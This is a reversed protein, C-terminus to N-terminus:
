VTVLTLLFFLRSEVFTLFTVRTLQTQPVYAVAGRLTSSIRHIFCGVLGSSGVDFVNGALSGKLTRSTVIAFSDGAGFSSMRCTAGFCLYGRNLRPGGAWCGGTLSKVFIFPGSSNMLSRMPPWRIFSAIFCRWRADFFDSVPYPPVFKVTFVVFGLEKSMTCAAFYDTVQMRTLCRNTTEYVLGLHALVRVWRFGCSDIDSGFM